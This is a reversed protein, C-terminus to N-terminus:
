PLLLLILYYVLYLCDLNNIVITKYTKPPYSKKNEKRLAIRSRQRYWLNNIKANVKKLLKIYIFLDVSLFFSAQELFRMFYFLSLKKIHGYSELVIYVSNSPMNVLTIQIEM